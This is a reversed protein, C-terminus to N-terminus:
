MPFNESFVQLSISQFLNLNDLSEPAITASTLKIDVIQDEMIDNQTIFDSINSNIEAQFTNSGEFLPGSATLATKITFEKSNNPESSCSILLTFLSLCIISLRFLKM